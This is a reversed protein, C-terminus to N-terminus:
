EECEIGWEWMWLWCMWLGWVVGVEVLGGGIALRLVRTDQGVFDVGRVVDACSYGLSDCFPHPTADLFARSRLLAPYSVRPFTQM